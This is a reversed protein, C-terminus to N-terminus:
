RRGDHIGGKTLNEYTVRNLYLGCAPATSGARSRDRSVLIAPIDDALLKGESVAILTGVLIRVMNYLFGNGSVTVSIVDDERMVRCSHITRVTDIV